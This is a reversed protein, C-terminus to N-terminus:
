LSRWDNLSSKVSFTFSPKANKPKGMVGQEEGFNRTSFSAGPQIFHRIMNLFHCTHKNEIPSEGISVGGFVALSDSANSSSGNTELGEGRGTCKSTGLGFRSTECSLSM